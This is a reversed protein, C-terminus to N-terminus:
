SLMGSILYFIVPFIITLNECLLWLTNLYVNIELSNTLHGVTKRLDDFYYTNEIPLIASPCTKRWTSWNHGAARM